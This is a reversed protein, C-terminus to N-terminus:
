KSVSKPMQSIGGEIARSVPTCKFLGLCVGFILANSVVNM